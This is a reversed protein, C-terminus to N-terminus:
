LQSTEARGLRAVGDSSRTCRAFTSAQGCIPYSPGNSRYTIVVLAQSPAALSGKWLRELREAQLASFAEDPGLPLAGM